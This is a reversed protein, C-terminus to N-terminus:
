TSHRFFSAYRHKLDTLLDDVFADGGKGRPRYRYRDDFPQPLAVHDADSGVILAGRSGVEAFLGFVITGLYLAGALRAVTPSPAAEVM